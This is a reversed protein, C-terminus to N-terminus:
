VGVYGLSRDTDVLMRFCPVLAEEPVEEFIMDLDQAEMDPLVTVTM